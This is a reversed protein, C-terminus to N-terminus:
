IVANLLNNKKKGQKSRRNISLDETSAPIIDLLSSICSCLCELGYHFLVSRLSEHDTHLIPKQNINQSQKTIAKINSYLNENIKTLNHTHTRKPM